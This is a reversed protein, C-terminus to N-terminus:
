VKDVPKRIKVGGREKEIYADGYEEKELKPSGTQESDRRKNERALVHRIILLLFPCITYCALIVGWPM